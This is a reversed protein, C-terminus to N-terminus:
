MRVEDNQMGLAQPPHRVLSLRMGQGARNQARRWFKARAALSALSALGCNAAVRRGQCRGQSDCKKWPPGVGKAQSGKAAPVSASQPLSIPQPHRTGLSVQRKAITPSVTAETRSRPPLQSAWGPRTMLPTRSHPQWPGSCATGPGLCPTPWSATLVVLGGVQFCVFIVRRGGARQTISDDTTCNGERTNNKPETSPRTGRESRKHIKEQTTTEDDYRRKLYRERRVTM